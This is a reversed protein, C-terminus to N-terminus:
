LGAEAQLHPLDAFLQAPAAVGGAMHLKERHRSPQHRVRGPKGGKVHFLHLGDGLLLQGLREPLKAGIHVLAAELAAGVYLLPATGDPRRHLLPYDGGATMFAIDAEILLGLLNGLPLQFLVCVFLILVGRRAQGAPRGTTKSIGPFM